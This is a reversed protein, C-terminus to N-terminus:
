ISYASSLRAASEKLARAVAGDMKTDFTTSVGIVTMAMRFSGSPDFVPCSFATWSPNRMGRTRAIGVRRVRASSKLANEFTVLMDGSESRWEEVDRVLLARTNEGAMYALFVQGTATLLSLNTGLRMRAATQVDGMENRVVMPGNPGWICLYSCLGTAGTLAQMIETTAQGFDYRRIAAIGIELTAPGIEYRGALGDKQVFGAQQLSSLYRHTRSASMGAAQAIETLAMARGAQAILKLLELGALATSNGAAEPSLQSPRGRRPPAHVAKM